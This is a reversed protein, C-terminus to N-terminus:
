TVHLRERNFLSRAMLPRDRVRIDRSQIGTKVPIVVFLRAVARSVRRPWSGATRSEDFDGGGLNRTIGIKGIHHRSLTGILVTVCAGM